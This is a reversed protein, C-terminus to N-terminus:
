FREQIFDTCQENEKCYEFFSRSVLWSVKWRCLALCLHCFNARVFPFFYAHYCCSFLERIKSSRRKEEGVEGYLLASSIKHKPFKFLKTFQDVVSVYGWFNGNNACIAGMSSLVHSAFAYNVVDIDKTQLSMMDMFLPILMRSLSEHGDLKKMVSHGIALILFKDESVIELFYLEQQAQEPHASWASAIIIAMHDVLQWVLSEEPTELRGEIINFWLRPQGNVIDLKTSQCYLLVIKQLVQVFPQCLYIEHRTLTDFATSMPELCAHAVRLVFRAPNEAGTKRFEVALNVLEHSIHVLEKLFNRMSHIDAHLSSECAFKSMTQSLLPMNSWHVSSDEHQLLLPELFNRLAGITAAAVGAADQPSKFCAGNELLECAKTWSAVDRTLQEYELELLGPLEKRITRELLQVWSTM